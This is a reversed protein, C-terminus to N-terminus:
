RTSVNLLGLRSGHQPRQTLKDKTETEARVIANCEVTSPNIEVRHQLSSQSPAVASLSYDNKGQVVLSNVLWTSCALEISEEYAMIWVVVRCPCDVGASSNQEELRVYVELWCAANDVEVPRRGVNCRLFRTRSVLEGVHDMMVVASDVEV